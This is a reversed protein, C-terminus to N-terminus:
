LADRLSFATDRLGTFQGNLRSLDTGAIGRMANHIRELHEAAHGAGELSERTKDTANKTEEEARINAERAAHIRELTDRQQELIAILDRNGEMQAQQMQSEIEALSKAYELQERLLKAKQDMGEAELLEANMEALRDKADQTEQQMQRLRENADEIEQKLNDLRSQDLLNLSRLGGEAQRIMGALAVEGHQGAEQLNEGLREALDAQDIWAKKVTNADATIKTLFAVFAGAHGPVNAIAADIKETAKRMDELSNTTPPIEGRMARFAAVAKDSLGSLSSIASNYFSNIIGSAMKANEADEKKSQAMDRTLQANRRAADTFLDMGKVLGEGAKAEEAMVDAHNQAQIAANAKEAAVEQLDAIQQRDAKSLEGDALLELTKADVAKAADAAEVARAQAVAQAQEILLNQQETKLKTAEAEDGYAEAVKIAGDIQQLQTDYYRDSADAARQHEQTQEAYLRSLQGVPGALIAAQQAEREQIPIKAAIEVASSRVAIAEAQAQDAAEKAQQIAQMNTPDTKLLAEYKQQLADATKQTADAELGYSEATKKTEEVLRAKQEAVLKAVQNENGAAEALKISAETVANNSEAVAQNAERQRQATEASGHASTINRDLAQTYAGLADSARKRAENVQETISKEATDVLTKNKQAELVAQYQERTEEMKQRMQDLTPVYQQLVTHSKETEASSESIKQALKEQADSAFSAQDVFVAVVSNYAGQMESLKQTAAAHANKAEESSMDAQVLRAVEAEQQKIAEALAKAVDSGKAQSKAQQETAAALNKQAETGAEAAKVLAQQQQEAGQTSGKMRELAKGSAEFSRAAVAAFEGASDSLGNLNAEIKKIEEDSYRDFYKGVEFTARGIAEVVKLTGSVVAALIGVVGSWAVTFSNAFTEGAGQAKPFAETITSALRKAADAVANFLDRVPGFDVSRIFGALFESGKQALSNIGALLDGAGRTLSEWTKSLGDPVNSKLAEWLARFGTAQKQASDTLGEMATQTKEANPAVSGGLAQAIREIGEALGTAISGLGEWASKLLEGAQQGISAAGPLTGTLSAYISGLSDLANDIAGKIAGFANGISTQIGSWNIGSAFAKAKEYAASFGDALAKQFAKIRENSSFTNLANTLTDLGKAFPELKPTALEIGVRKLSEWFRDLAGLFNGQMIKATDEASKGTKSIQDAFDAIAKSGGQAMLTNIVRAGQEGFLAITQSANLGQGELFDLVDGLETSTAGLDFLSKTAAHAPNNLIALVSALGTGAESGRQGAKALVDLTAATETLSMGSRSAENGTYKLAEGMDTATAAVAGASKALIDAVKTADEAKLGFQAIADSILVAAKAVSIEEMAALALTGKLAQISEDASFGAAILEKIGGAAETASYGFQPGLTQAAEKARSVLAELAPGSEDARARIADLAKEFTAAEKISFASAIMAALAVLRTKIDGLVSSATDKATILLQIALNRSGDAM